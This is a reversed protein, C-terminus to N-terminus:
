AGCCAAKPTGISEAVAEDFKTVPIVNRLSGYSLLGFKQVYSQTSSFTRDYVADVLLSLIAELLNVLALSLMICSQLIKIPLVLFAALYPLGNKEESLLQGSDPSNYGIRKREKNFVPFKISDQSYQKKVDEKSYGTFKELLRERLGFTRVLFCTTVMLASCILVCQLLSNSLICAVPVIAIMELFPIINKKMAFAAGKKLEGYQNNNQGQKALFSYELYSLSALSFTLFGKVGCFISSKLDSVLKKHFSENSKKSPESAKEKSSCCSHM